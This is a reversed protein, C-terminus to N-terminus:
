IWRHNLAYGGDKHHAAKVGNFHDNSYCHRKILNCCEIGAPFLAWSLSYVVSFGMDMGCGGVGLSASGDCDCEKFGAALAALHSINWPGDPTSILLKIRRYMGSRSVNILVTSVTDGPKLHERLRKLADQRAEEKLEKKTM